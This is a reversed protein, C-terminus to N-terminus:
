KKLYPELGHILPKIHGAYKRWADSSGQYMKERVQMSSATKVARKNKHFNLCKEDWDLECYELLNRTEYEQNTTLDEYCIDYIKGPFKEHWFNMLKSYLGYYGVLDDMNYSFGYGNGSWKSKYISWCTARPDRKLHIIKANPFISLIIGIYQFNAPTKDSIISESTNLQNLSDLYKERILILDKESYTNTHKENSLKGEILPLCLKMLISLEGGGYVAQHSSLIQEVLSTGSRPMGLIFLPSKNSTDNNKLSKKISNPREAFIKYIISIIKKSTNFSYNLDIKRIRNGENLYNFFMDNNGSNENVAALAFNIAVLNSQDMDDTQLISQMNKIQKESFSYNNFQSLNYYANAYNPDVSLAKEFSRISSDTKNLEKETLGINNHADALKPNIALSKEYYEIAKELDGTNQFIGGRHNAAEAYGPNIALAKDFNKGAEFDNELSKYALGLNNYAQSFKPNIAVAFSFHIIADDYKKLTILANGLNYHANPYAHKLLIANKYCSIAEEIKGLERLTVGLNYHVESYEPQLTLAKEFKKVALDLQGTSQYFSGCVNFLLAELPFDKTLIEIAIIAEKKQGNSFSDIISQIVERPPGQQNKAHQLSVSRKKQKKM